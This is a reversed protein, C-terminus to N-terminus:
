IQTEKIWKDYVIQKKSAIVKRVNNGTMGYPAGIEDTTMGLDYIKNEIYKKFIAAHRDGARTKGVTRDVIDFLITKLEKTQIDDELSYDDELTDGIENYKGEKDEVLNNLSSINNQSDLCLQRDEPTNKYKGFATLLVETRIALKYYNMFSGEENSPDFHNYTKMFAVAMDTMGQEMSVITHYKKVENLAIVYTLGFIKEKATEPEDNAYVHKIYDNLKVGKPARLIKVDNYLYNDYM